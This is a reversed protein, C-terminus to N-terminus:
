SELPKWKPPQARNEWRTVLRGVGVNESNLKHYNADLRLTNIRRAIHMRDEYTIMRSKM